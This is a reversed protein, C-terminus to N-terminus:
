HNKSVDGTGWNASRNERRLITNVFYRVEDMAHDFEKIVEDERAETNWRYMGFERIADRCSEHILLMGANLLAATNRIGDLVDNRAKRVSFHGHRRICEIFSAASPDVVISQIVRDGALREVDAYYEEDTKQKNGPLRSDYYFESIRTAKTGSLRWLGASFPNVTGYDISIYYLGNDPKKKGNKGPKEFDLEHIVHKNKDFIPYVLGEAIQWEGLIYRDYYVTGFYERKLNDVFEPNLFPNDDILFKMSYIDADSELFTKFWHQPNDPNCTGDFCAGPKDLRSKLMQFVDPHWTTVEDGYCYALGSGQLKTMQNIKDAGLAYCTRGFLQVKNNSGIPGVLAGTWIQRMPDLINRELTGKTNGLLLILGEEGASRIRQPIKYYDLYTKGSRTAGFSVNWRHHRAITNRWVEKQKPSFDIM